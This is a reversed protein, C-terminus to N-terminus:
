YYGMRCRLIEPSGLGHKHFWRLISEPDPAASKDDGVDDLMSTSGRENDLHDAAEAYVIPHARGTRVLRKLKSRTRRLSVKPSHTVITQLRSNNGISRANIFQPVGLATELWRGHARITALALSDQADEVNGTDNDAVRWARVGDVTGAEHADGVLEQYEKILLDAGCWLYESPRHLDWDAYLIDIFKKRTAAFWEKSSREIFWTSDKRLWFESGGGHASAQLALLASDASGLAMHCKAALYHENPFLEYRAKLAEIVRLAGAHDQRLFKIYARSVERHYRFYNAGGLVLSSCSIALLLLVSRASSM